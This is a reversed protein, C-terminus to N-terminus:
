PLMAAAAKIGHQCSPQLQIQAEGFCIIHEMHAKICFKKIHIATKPCSLLFTLLIANKQPRVNFCCYRLFMSVTAPSINSVRGKPQPFPEPSLTSGTSTHLDSNLDGAGSFSPSPACTLLGCTLSASDPHPPFPHLCTFGQSKFFLTSFYLPVGCSPQQDGCAGAQSLSGAYTHLDCGEGTYQPSLRM